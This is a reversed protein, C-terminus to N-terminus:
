VGTGRGFSSIVIGLVISAAIVVVIIAIWDAFDGIAYLTTNLVASAETDTIATDISSLIYVGIGVIIGILVLTLVALYIDDLQMGKKNHMTLKKLEM